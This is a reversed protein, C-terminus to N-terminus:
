TTSNALYKLAAAKDHFKRGQGCCQRYGRYECRVLSISLDNLRVRRERDTQVNRPPAADDSGIRDIDHTADHRVDGTQAVFAIAEPPLTCASPVGAM